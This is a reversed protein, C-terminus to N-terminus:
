QPAWPPKARKRTKRPDADIEVVETAYGSRSRELKFDQISGAGLDLADLAETFMAMAEQQTDAEIKGSVSTRFECFWLAVSTGKRRPENGCRVM